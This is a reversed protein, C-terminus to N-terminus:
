TPCPSRVFAEGMPPTHRAFPGQGVYHVSQQVNLAESEHCAVCTEPGTYNAIRKHESIAYAQGFLALLGTMLYTHAKM